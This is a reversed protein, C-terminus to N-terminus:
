ASLMKGAPHESRLIKAGGNPPPGAEAAAEFPRIAGGGASWPGTLPRGCCSGTPPSPRPAWGSTTPRARPRPDEVISLGNEICLTDSLRRVARTSGLFTFKRTCDLSTSNWIIHNHVHARDIHTCVIFAHDDKTYRRAFEVGIRNAEEPMVEGPVFAQRIHCAILVNRRGAAQWGPSTNSSAPVSVRRGFSLAAAMPRLSGAGTPKTRTRLMTWFIASLTAWARGQRTHLPMIRTAAM